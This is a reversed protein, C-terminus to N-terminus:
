LRSRAGPEATMGTHSYPGTHTASEEIPSGQDARHHADALHKPDRALSAESPLETVEAGSIAALQVLVAPCGPFHPTAFYM